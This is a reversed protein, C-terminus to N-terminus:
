GFGKQATQLTLQKNEVDLKLKDLGDLVALVEGTTVHDNLHVNLQSVKGSVAFSLNAIPKSAALSGVGSASQTLDGRQVSQPKTLRAQSQPRLWHLNSCGGAAMRWALLPQWCRWYM